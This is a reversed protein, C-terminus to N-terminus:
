TLLQQPSSAEMSAGLLKRKETQFEEDTLAGAVRLENLKALQSVVDVQAAGGAGVSSPVNIVINQAQNNSMAQTQQVAPVALAAAGGNYKANFVDESMTLFIFAEFFAIIGPIWTWCFFLYLLGKGSEGLYFKHVGIGGLFFALVAAVTKSKM